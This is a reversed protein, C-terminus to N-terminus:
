VTAPYPKKVETQRHTQKEVRYRFLRQMPNGFKVCFHKV